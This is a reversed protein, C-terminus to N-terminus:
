EYRFQELLKIKKLDKIGPSIEIKSNLDVGFIQLTSLYDIDEVGVGGAIMFNSLNVNDLISWDFKNGSGGLTSAMNDLLFITNRIPEIQLLDNQQLNTASLPEFCMSKKPKQYNGYLQFNSQVNTDLFKAIDDVTPNELLCTFKDQLNYKRSMDLAWDVSVKRPSSKIFNFGIYDINVSLLAEIDNERTVGGVKIKM